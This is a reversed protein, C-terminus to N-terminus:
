AFTVALASIVIIVISFVIWERLYISTKKPREQIRGTTILTLIFLFLFAFPLAITKSAVISVDTIIIIGMLGGFILICLIMIANLVHRIRDINM